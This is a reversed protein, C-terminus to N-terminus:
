GEVLPELKELIQNVRALDDERDKRLETVDNQGSSAAAKAADSHAQLAEIAEDKKGLVKDKAAMSIM